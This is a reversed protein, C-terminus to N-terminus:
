PTSLAVPLVKGNYLNHGELVFRAVYAGMTAPTVPAAYGPFAQRLMDTDVAGLALCNSRIGRERFEEALCQALCALAAKSASYFALSPFKASDQYGGMSSIMVVHGPPDGDLQAALAQTLLFPVTANVHFLRSADDSTWEGFPRRILLGANHVMGAVRRGVVIRRLQETADPAALDLALTELRDSGIEGALDILARGNRAVALVHRGHEVVLARVTARGIGQSAGTVITLPGEGTTQM